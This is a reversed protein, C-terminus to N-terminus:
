GLFEDFSFIKEVSSHPETIDVGGIAYLEGKFLVLALRSRRQLMKPGMRWKKEHPNFFSVDMLSQSSDGSGGVLCIVGMLSSRPQTKKPDSFLIVSAPNEHYDLAERIMVKIEHVKMLPPVSWRLSFSRNSSRFAFTITSLSPTSREKKIMSLGGQSPMSSMRKQISQSKTVM